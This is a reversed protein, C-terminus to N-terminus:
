YVSPSVMPNSLSPLNKKSVRHCHGKGIFELDHFFTRTALELDGVKFLKAVENIHTAGESIIGGLHRYSETIPHDTSKTDVTSIQHLKVELAIRREVFKVVQPLPNRKNTRRYPMKVDIRHQHETVETDTNDPTGFKRTSESIHQLSHLKPFNLSSPSVEEFPGKLDDFQSLLADQDVLTRETQIPSSAYFYWEVFIALCKTVEPSPLLGRV